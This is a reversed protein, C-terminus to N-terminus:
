REKEEEEINGDVKEKERAKSKEKSNGKEEKPLRSQVIPLWTGQRMAAFVVFIEHTRNKKPRPNKKKLECKEHKRTSTGPWPQGTRNSKWELGPKVYAGSVEDVRVYNTVWEMIKKESM